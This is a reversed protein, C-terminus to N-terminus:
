MSILPVAFSVVTLLPPRMAMSTPPVAFEAVTLLPPLIDMPPVAFAVVTLLPPLMLMSSPPVAFEAVTLLPPLRMIELPPFAIPRRAMSSPATTEAFSPLVMSKLTAPTKGFLAGSTVLRDRTCPFGDYLTVTESECLFPLYTRASPTSPKVFVTATELTPIGSLSSPMTELETWVHKVSESSAPLSSNATQLRTAMYPECVVEATSTLGNLQATPAVTPSLPMSFTQFPPIAQEVVMFPPPMCTEPPPVASRVETPAPPEIVTCPPAFATEVKMLPPPVMATCPPALTTEVKTRPPWICMEPPVAVEVTTLPPLMTREAPTALAVM